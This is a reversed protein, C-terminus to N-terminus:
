LVLKEVWQVDFGPSWGLVQHTLTDDDYSKLKGFDLENGGSQCM